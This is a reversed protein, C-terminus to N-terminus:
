QQLQPSAARRVVFMNAACLSLMAVGILYALADQALSAKIPEALAGLTMFTTFLMATYHMGAIALGLAVAGLATELAHRRRFVFWLAITAAVISIVIALVVGGPNHAVGCGRIAGMGLYHMGSIALGMLLGATPLSAAGLRRKAVIGLSIGTVVVPLVLSAFTKLLDYEIVVPLQVALMAVFHMSWISGGLVLGGYCSVCGAYGRVTTRHEYGSTIALATFSGLIAIAISMIVLVPDYVISM